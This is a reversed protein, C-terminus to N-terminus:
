QNIKRIVRAPRGVALSNPPISKNVLSGVGIVSGRGITVGPLLTCNAAIWTFDEVTIAGGAHPPRSREFTTNIDHQATIFSVGFGINCYNGISVPSTADIHINRNFGSRRGITVRDLVSHIYFGTGVRCGWGLQFGALKLILGRFYRALVGDGLLDLLRLLWHTLLVSIEYWLLSFWM